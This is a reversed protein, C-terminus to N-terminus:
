AIWQQHRFRQMEAACRESPAIPEYFNRKSLDKIDELLSDRDTTLKLWSQLSCHGKQRLIMADLNMTDHTLLSMCAHNYMTVFDLQFHTHHDFYFFFDDTLDVRM